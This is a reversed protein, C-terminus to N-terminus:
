GMTVITVPKGAKLKALVRALPADKPKYDTKDQEIKAELRLDDIVYSHAAVDRWYDRKGFWMQSLKSPLPGNKVDLPKSQENSLAATIDSWPIYVKKWETSNLPFACEYRMAYDENWIFHMAGCHQSGDGKLWFSIGEAKDWEPTAKSNGTIFAHSGEDFTLKIAKGIKGDVLEVKAKEKPPQFTLADMADILGDAAPSTASLFFLILALSTLRRTRM